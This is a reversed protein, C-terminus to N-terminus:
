TTCLAPLPQAQQQSLPVRPGWGCGGRWAPPGPHRVWAPPGQGWWGGGPQTLPGRSHTSSPMGAPLGDRSPGLSDPDPRQNRPAGLGEGAGPWRGLGWGPETPPPTLVFSTPAPPPECGGGLPDKGLKGLRLWERGWGPGATTNGLGVGAQSGKGWRGGLPGPMLAGPDLQEGQGKGPSRQLPAQAAAFCEGVSERSGDKPILAGNAAQTQQRDMRQARM